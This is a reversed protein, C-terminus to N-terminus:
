GPPVLRALARGYANDVGPGCLMDRNTALMSAIQISAETGEAVLADHETNFKQIALAYAEGATKGAALAIDIQADCDFFIDAYRQDVNTPWTFPGSYGFFASAGGGHPDALARGLLDGTNCSLLHVIRGQIVKPDYGNITTAFVPQDDSDGPFSDSAGHAVGTIYVVGSDLLANEVSTQTANAGTLLVNGSIASQGVLGPYVQNERYTCAVHLTDDSDFDIAVMKGPPMFSV